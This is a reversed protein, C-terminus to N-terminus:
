NWLSGKIKANPNKRATTLYNNWLIHILSLTVESIYANLSFSIRLVSLVLFCEAATVTMPTYRRRPHVQSPPTDALPPPPGALPPVQWPSHIGAHVSASVGSHVSHFVNGQRLKTVSPLYGLYCRFRSSCTSTLPTTLQYPFKSLQRQAIEVAYNHPFVLLSFWWTM